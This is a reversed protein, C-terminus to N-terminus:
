SPGGTASIHAAIQRAHHRGNEIFWRSTHRGGCVTGALYVGPRNTEFSNPDYVPTEAADDALHIGVRRLFAFDPLYGTMALVVDAQLEEFGSSSSVVVHEPTIEVVQTNFRARIAGEEIRNEIDPKIWYKVSQSVAADRVVLTVRAGARHCDLAAIAASNKAGIIVVDRFAFAYPEQYYHHVHPLEEGPVDLLVPHDFFGTAIVVFRANHEGKNTKVIFGERKGDVSEVTEFLRLDLQEKQAVLRYYDIADERLPKYERSPFPYDGIELLEPTSFFTMNTPYGTLSNVLAGKEVVRTQLGLRNCELACAIGVPGAGVVVVDIM